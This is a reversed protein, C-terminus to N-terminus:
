MLGTYYHCDKIIAFVDFTFLLEKHLSQLSFWLFLSPIFWYRIDLIYLVCVDLIICINCTLLINECVWTYANIEYLAGVWIGQAGPGGACVTFEWVFPRFTIWTGSIELRKFPVPIFVAVGGILTSCNISIILAETLWWILRTLTSISSIMGWDSRFTTSVKSWFIKNPFYGLSHFICINCALDLWTM